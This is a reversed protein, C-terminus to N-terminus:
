EEQSVPAEKVEKDFMAYQAEGTNEYAVAFEFVKRLLATGEKTDPIKHLPTGIATALSLYEPSKLVTGGSLFGSRQLRRIVMVANTNKVLGDLSDEDKEPDDGTSVLVLQRVAYKRASTAAKAAGKDQSDAGMGVVQIDITEGTESDVLRYTYLITILGASSSEHVVEAKCPYFVLGLEVMVPRVADLLDTETLYTYRFHSNEGSKQVYNVRSVLEALKGYVGM